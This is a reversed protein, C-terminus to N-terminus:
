EKRLESTMFLFDPLNKIEIQRQNEYGNEPAPKLTWLGPELDQNNHKIIHPLDSFDQSSRKKM